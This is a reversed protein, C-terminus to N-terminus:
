FLSICAFLSTYIRFSVYKYTAKQVLMCRSEKSGLLVYILSRCM